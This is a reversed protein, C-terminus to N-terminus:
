QIRKGQTSFSIGQQGSATIMIAEFLPENTNPKIKWRFIFNDGTGGEKDVEDIVIEVTEMPAIYIPRDLYSRILQGKTNYYDSQEIYITDHLNTNRMSVTVTLGHTKHATRSYIQSYTSLYTTGEILSDNAPLKTTRKNWDIADIDDKKEHKDCSMMLFLLILFAIIKNMMSNM